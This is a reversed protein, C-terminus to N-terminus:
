HQVNGVTGPKHERQAREAVDRSERELSTAYLELDNIAQIRGKTRADTLPDDHSSELKRRYSERMSELYTKYSEYAPGNQRLWELWLPAQIM